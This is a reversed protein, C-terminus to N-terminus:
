TALHWPTTASIIEGRREPTNSLVATASVLSNFLYVDVRPLKWTMSRKASPRTIWNTMTVKRREKIMKM